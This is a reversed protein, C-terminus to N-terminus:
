NTPLAPFSPQSTELFGPYDYISLPESSLEGSGVPWARTEGGTRVRVREVGDLETATAVLQALALRLADATLEGFAENVDITLVRGVTRAGDLELEPPIATSLQADLEENNPGALLSSLLEEADDGVNRPVSRLRQREEADPPTLLYIRNQGAAVDGSVQNGFGGLRDAPIERPAGDTEITCGSVGLLVAGALAAVVLRPTRAANM